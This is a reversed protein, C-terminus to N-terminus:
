TRRTVRRFRGSFFRRGPNTCGGLLFLSLRRRNQRGRGHSVGVVPLPLDRVVLPHQEDEIPAIPSRMAALFEPLELLLQRLKLGQPNLDGSNAHVWDFIGALERLVETQRKGQKGIRPALDDLRIADVIRGVFDSPGGQEDDVLLPNDSPAVDGFVIGLSQANTRHKLNRLINLRSISGFWM